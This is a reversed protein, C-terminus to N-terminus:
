APISVSLKTQALSVADRLRRPDTHRISENRTHAHRMEWQQFAIFINEEVPHKQAGKSGGMTSHMHRIVRPAEVYAFRSRLIDLVRQTSDELLGNTPYSLLFVSRMEAAAEVLDVFSSNVSSKLSFGSTFRDPRYQGKAATVPYDYLVINELLHYYRSYQDNTYPPDAYIVAPQRAKGAISRLLTAADTNFVRNNRRWAVTGAPKMDLLAAHWLSWIDMRRKRLVRNINGDNPSLYQAFHGTSNSVTSAAQCLALVM